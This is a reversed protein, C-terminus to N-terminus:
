FFKIEGPTTEANEKIDTLKKARDIMLNIKEIRGLAETAHTEPIHYAKGNCPIIISIGNVSVTMSAGFYPKYLPSIAVPITDESKYVKLLSRRKMEVAHLSQEASKAVSAKTEVAPSDKKTAM